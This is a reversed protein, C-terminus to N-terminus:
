TPAQCPSHHGDDGGEGHRRAAAAVTVAVVVAAPVARGRGGALRRRDRALLPRHGVGGVVAHVGGQEFLGAVVGEGVAHVGLAHDDHVVALDDGLPVGLAGVLVGPGGAPRHGLAE